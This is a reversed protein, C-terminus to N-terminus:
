KSRNQLWSPGLKPKMISGPFIYCLVAQVHDSAEVVAEGLKCIDGLDGFVFVMWCSIGLFISPRAATTGRLPTLGGGSGKPDTVAHRVLTCLRLECFEYKGLDKAPDKDGGKITGLGGRMGDPWGFGLPTFRRDAICNGIM